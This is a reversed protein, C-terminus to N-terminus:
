GRTSAPLPPIRRVDDLWRRLMRAWNEFLVRSDAIMETESGVQSQDGPDQVAQPQIARLLVQRSQSDAVELLLTMTGETDIFTDESSETERPVVVQLDVAHPEVLLVDPGPEKTLMYVSSKALEKEFAARFDEDLDALEQPSLHQTTGAKYRIWARDIMLKHYGSLDTGPRVFVAAGSGLRQDIRHLGDATVQVKDRTDYRIGGPACSVALLTLLLSAGRRM